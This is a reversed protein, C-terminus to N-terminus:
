NKANKIINDLEQLKSSDVIKRIDTYTAVRYKIDSDEVLTILRQVEIEFKYTDEELSELEEILWNDEEELLESIEFIADEIAINKEKVNKLVSLIIKTKNMIQQGGLSQRLKTCTHM